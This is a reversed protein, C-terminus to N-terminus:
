IGFAERLFDIQDEYMEIRVPDDERQALKELKRIKKKAQEVTSITGISMIKYRDM